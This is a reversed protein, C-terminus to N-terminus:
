NRLTCRTRALFSAHAFGEVKWLAQVDTPSGLAVKAMNPREDTM